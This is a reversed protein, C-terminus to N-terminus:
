SENARGFTETDGIIVLMAIGTAVVFAIYVAVLISRLKKEWDEAAGDGENAFPGWREMTWAPIHALEMILGFGLSVGIFALILTEAPDQLWTYFVTKTDADALGM